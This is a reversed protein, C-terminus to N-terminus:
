ANKVWVDVSEFLTDRLIEEHEEESMEAWESLSIQTDVEHDFTCNLHSGLGIIVTEENDSM